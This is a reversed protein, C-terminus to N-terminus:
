PFEVMVLLFLTTSPVAARRVGTGDSFGECLLDGIGGGGDAGPKMNNFFSKLFKGLLSFATHM